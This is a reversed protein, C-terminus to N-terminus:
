KSFLASSRASINFLMPASDISSRNEITGGSNRSLRASSTGGASPSNSSVDCRLSSAALFTAAPAAAVDAEQAAAAVVM